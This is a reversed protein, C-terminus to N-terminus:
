IMRYLLMSTANMTEDDDQVPSVNSNFARENNFSPDNPHVDFNISLYVWCYRPCCDTERDSKGAFVVHVCGLASEFWYHMLCSDFTVRLLCWSLTFLACGYLLKVFLRILLGDLVSLVVFITHVLVRKNKHRVTIQRFRWGGARWSETSIRRLQALPRLVLPLLAFSCAGGGWGVGKGSGSQTLAPIFGVVIEIASGVMTM